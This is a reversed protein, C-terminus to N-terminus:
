ICHLEGTQHILLAIEGQTFGKVKCLRSREEGSLATHLTVVIEFSLTFLLLIAVSKKKGTSM